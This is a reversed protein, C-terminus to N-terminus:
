TSTPPASRIAPHAQPTTPLPATCAKSSPAEAPPATPNARPTPLAPDPNACNPPAPHPPYATSPSKQSTAATRRLSLSSRVSSFASTAPMSRTPFCSNCSTECATRSHTKDRTLPRSYKPLSLWPNYTQKPTLNPHGTQPLRFASPEPVERDSPFLLRWIGDWTQTEETPGRAALISATADTIEDEPDDLTLPNVECIQDRPLM